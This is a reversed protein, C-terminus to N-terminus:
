KKVVRCKNIGYYKLIEVSAEDIEEGCIVIPVAPPCSVSAEAQIRGVCEHTPLEESDSFLAKGLSIIRKPRPVNLTNKGLPKRKPIHSLINEVRDLADAGLEPSIMMVTFDPDSFECMGGRSEIEFALGDGTYGLDRASLTLKLPENGVLVFGKEILRAKIADLQRIFGALKEPYGDSIYRNALDLSALILYSPSTSGFLSLASRAESKFLSPANKSIHLYAGGTLVPLTKHASDCCIDAGLDIPHRSPSLFKLYAGHANDVALIVGHKKCVRSIGEIDTINGLYDPSTVYVASIKEDNDSLMRDLEDADIPCSLYSEGYLWDVEIDLLAAATIFTKHANRGALIRPAKGLGEARRKILCLMARICLSSGEASYFTHETGFLSSANNESELIIGDAHYLSDAGTIETIDLPECGIGPTGKHGPMHLRLTNKEAYAKSFDYIPTNM